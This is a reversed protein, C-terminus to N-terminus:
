SYLAQDKEEEMSFDVHATKTVAIDEEVKTCIKPCQKRIL